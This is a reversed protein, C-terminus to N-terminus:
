GGQMLSALGEPRPTPRDTYVADLGFRALVTIVKRKDEASWYRMWDTSPDGGQQLASRYGTTRSRRRMKPYISPDFERGLYAAIRPIEEEPEMLLREYLVVHLEGERLQRLPVFNEVCWWFAYQEPPTTTSRIADEYPALHDAMLHDQKLFRDLEPAFRRHRDVEALRMRSTMVALPHRIVFVIKVMPFNAHVWGLLLNAYVDKIVRRRAFPVCNLHDVWHHRLSGRLMREIPERYVPDQEEPRLYQGRVFHAFQPVHPPTLPEFMYRQNNRHNLLEAVWSTGSRGSGTVYLTDGPDSGLDIFVRGWLNRQARQVARYMPRRWM